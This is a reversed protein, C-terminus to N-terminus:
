NGCRQLISSCARSFPRRDFCVVTESRITLQYDSTVVVEPYEEATINILDFVGPAMREALFLAPVPDAGAASYYGEIGIVEGNEYVVGKGHAGGIIFIEKGADVM